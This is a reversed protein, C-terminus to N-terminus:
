VEYFSGGIFERLLSTPPVDDHPISLFMELFSMVNRALNYEPTSPKVSKLLPMAFNKLVSTEYDLFTNCVCDATQMFPFINKDEGKTVSEWRSLTERATYGRHNYDRVIRRVLRGISNSMFNQEDFNLQSLPALFIRYKNEVPVKPTLAENLCHIGEMLIVGQPPLKIDITKTPNPKGTKFDFIPTKVLEGHVLSLLHENLLDVRVAGICEFDYKGTAPDRPTEERPVFYNDVTIVIPTIGLIELQTALKNAFTTKGSASPGAILIIRTKEIRQQINRAIEVIKMNHVGESLAIFKKAQNDVVKRNLDGVCSVELTEARQKYEAYIENMKRDEVIPPVTTTEELSGTRPPFGIIFGHSGLSLDFYKLQGTSKVLARTFVSKYDGLCAVRVNEDNTTDILAASFPRNTSTFYELADNYSIVDETIPLDLKVLELMTEKLRDIETQSASKGNKLTCVYGTGNAHEVTVLWEKGFAKMAAACMLFVTSRRYVSHGELDDRYVPEIVSRKTVLRNNLSTVIGNVKLAVLPRQNTDDLDKAVEKLVVFRPYVKERKDSFVAVSEEGEAPPAPTVSPSGKGVVPSGPVAPSSSSPSSSSSSSPAAATHPHPHAPTPHAPKAAATAAPTTKSPSASSTSSSAPKAPSTTRGRAATTSEPKAGTAAAAPKAAATTTTAPKPSPSTARKAPEKTEKKAPSAPSATAATKKPSSM